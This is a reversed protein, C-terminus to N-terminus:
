LLFKAALWTAGILAAGGIAATTPTISPAAPPPAATPPPAPPPPMPTAAVIAAQLAQASVLLSYLTAQPVPTTYNKTLTPWDASLLALYDPNQLLQQGAAAPMSQLAPTITDILAGLGALPVTSDAIMSQLYAVVNGARKAARMFPDSVVPAGLGEPVGRLYLGPRSSAAGATPGTVVCAWGRPTRVATHGPPCRPM